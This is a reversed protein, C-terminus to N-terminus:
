FQSLRAQVVWFKIGAGGELARAIEVAVEVEINDVVFKPGTSDKGRVQATALSERLAGIVEALELRDGVNEMRVGMLKLACSKRPARLGASAFTRLQNLPSADPYGPGESEEVSALVM